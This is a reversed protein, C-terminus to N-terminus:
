EDSLNMVICRLLRCGQAYHMAEEKIRVWLSKKPANQISYLRLKAQLGLHGFNNNSQRIGVSFLRITNLSGM